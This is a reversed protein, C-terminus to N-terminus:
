RRGRFASLDVSSGAGQPVIVTQAAGIRTEDGGDVELQAEPDTNRKLVALAIPGDDYHNAASTVLGVPRDKGPVYIHAGPEPVVGDLDLRVIRRPPHGLNHVKAITEQGRYCGKTLHVASRLLDFEHPVARDDFERAERPRWAAIRLAELADIGAVSDFSEAVRALADADLLHGSAQVVPRGAAGRRGAPALPQGVVPLEAGDHAAVERQVAERV